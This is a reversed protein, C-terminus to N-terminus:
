GARDAARYALCVFERGTKVVQRAPITSTAFLGTHLWAQTCTSYYSTQELLM